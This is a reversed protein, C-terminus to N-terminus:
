FHALGRQNPEELISGVRQALYFDATNPVFSNHKIYYTLGNSLVGTKISKDQEVNRATAVFTMVCLAVAMMYKNLRM